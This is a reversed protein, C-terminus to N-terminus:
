ISWVAIVGGILALAAIVQIIIDLKRIQNDHNWQEVISRGKLWRYETAPKVTM